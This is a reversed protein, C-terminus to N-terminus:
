FLSLQEEERPESQRAKAAGPERKNAPITKSANDPNCPSEASLIAGLRELESAPLRRGVQGSAILCLAVEDSVARAEGARTAAILEALAEGPMGPGYEIMPEAAREFLETARRREERNGEFRAEAREIVAEAFEDFPLRHLGLRLFSRNLSAQAPRPDGDTDLAHRALKRLTDASALLAGGAHLDKLSSGLWYEHLARVSAAPLLPHGGNTVEDLPLYSPPRKGAQKFLERLTFRLVSAFSIGRLMRLGGEEGRYLSPIGSPLASAPEYIPEAFTTMGRERLDRLFRERHIIARQTQRPVGRRTIRPMRGVLPDTSEFPTIRAIDLGRYLRQLAPILRARLERAPAPTEFLASRGMGLEICIGHRTREDSQLERSDARVNIEFGATELESSRRHFFAGHGRNTFPRGPVPQKDLYREDAERVSRVYQEIHIMEHVLTNIVEAPDRDISRAISIRYHHSGSRRAYKHQARGIARRLQASFVVQTDAPLTGGFHDRNIAAFAARLDRESVPTPLDAYPTRAM